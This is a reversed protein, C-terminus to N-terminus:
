AALRAGIRSAASCPQSWTQKRSAPSPRYTSSSPPIFRYKTVRSPRSTVGSSPVMRSPTVRAETRVRALSRPRSTSSRRTSMPSHCSPARVPSIRSTNAQPVPATTVGTPRRTQSPPSTVAGSVAASSETM